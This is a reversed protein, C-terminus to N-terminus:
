SKKQFSVSHASLKRSVSVYFAMSQSKPFFILEQLDKM